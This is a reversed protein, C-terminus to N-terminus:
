AGGKERAKRVARAELFDDLLQRKVDTADRWRETKDPHYRGNTAAIEADREDLMAEALAVAAKVYEDEVPQAATFAALAKSVLVVANMRRDRSSTKASTDGGCSETYENIADWLKRRPSDPPEYQEVPQAARAAQWAVRVLAQPHLVDLRDTDRRSHYWADAEAQAPTM